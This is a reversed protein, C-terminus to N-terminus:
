VEKVEIGNKRASLSMHATGNGGPFAVVLDPEEKLMATNRVLGASRGYKNWDAPYEKVPIGRKKAWHGSLIDAGNAAGHIILTPKPDLSDLTEYLLNLDHFDRGGCVLVKM